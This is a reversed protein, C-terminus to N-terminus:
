NKVVKKFVPDSQGAMLTILYTGNAYNSLDIHRRNSTDAFAKFWVLKGMNDQVSLVLGESDFPPPLDIVVMGDTPNPYITIEGIANLTDSVSSIFVTDSSLLSLDVQYYTTQVTDLFQTGCMSTATIVISDTRISDKHYIDTILFSSTVTIEYGDVAVSSSAVYDSTSSFSGSYTTDIYQYNAIVETTGVSDSTNILLVLGQNYDAIAIDKRGDGNIDGVSIGQPTYHTAYPLAFRQDTTYQGQNDQEFVSLKHWGGHIVIIENTGDCNLDAIETSEPIDYAITEYPLAQLLSTVTDQFSLAIRAHPTNGGKSAVIDNHQDNNLDGIAIGHIKNQYNEPNDPFYSQYANLTGNTHQTYVHIGGLQSGAMFVVDILGDSNVDGVDIENDYAFPKPYSLNSFGTANQYFVRIFNEAGHAVAIDTLGDHNLDGCKVGDVQNGSFYAQFSSLTGSNNQFFIGVSDSYGIVVDNLNDNNVDAVTIGEIQSAPYAYLVPPNLSGLQNQLYVFIRYDNVPDFYFGTGLVVDELGDNNIDAIAVVDASSGTTIAQFPLFSVQSFALTTNLIVVVACFWKKMSPRITKVRHLYRKPALGPLALHRYPYPFALSHFINDSDSM